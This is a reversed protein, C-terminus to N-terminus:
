ENSKNDKRTKRARAITMAETIIKNVEGVSNEIGETGIEELVGLNFILTTIHRSLVTKADKILPFNKKSEQSIKENYIKEFDAQATKFEGLCPIAGIRAMAANAETTEFDDIIMKIRASEQSYPLRYLTWGHKNIIELLQKGDKSITPNLRNSSSKISDRLSIFATDRISDRHQIEETYKSGREKNLADEMKEIDNEILDIIQTILAYDTNVTKIVNVIRTSITNLESPLLLSTYLEEIM